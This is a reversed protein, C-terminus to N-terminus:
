SHSSHHRAVEDRTKPERPEEVKVQFPFHHLLRSVQRLSYKFSSSDSFCSQHTYCFGRSYATLKIKSILPPVLRRKNEKM